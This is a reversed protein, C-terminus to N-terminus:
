LNGPLVRYLTNFSNVKYVVGENEKIRKKESKVQPKHDKTIQTVEKGYYSSMIARSDGINAIYVTKDAIVTVVACSGSKDNLTNDQNIAVLSLFDNELRSFIDHLAGEIDRPFLESRM